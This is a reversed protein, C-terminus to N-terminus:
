QQGGITITGDPKFTIAPRASQTTAAKQENAAVGATKVRQAYQNMFKQFGDLSALLNGSTMKGTDFDSKFKDFMQGGGRAGFHARLAGSLTLSGLTRLYAFDPDDAGVKGTMVENIRGAIPGLKGAKGLKAVESRVDTFLKNLDQAQQGMTKTSATPASPSKWGITEGSDDVLSSPISKGFLTGFTDRDFAQQALSLRGQAIAVSAQRLALNGESIKNVSPPPGLPASVGAEKGPTKGAELKNVVVPGEGTATVTYQGATTLPEAWRHGMPTGFVQYLNPGKPILTENVDTLGLQNAQDGTMQSMKQPRLMGPSFPRGSYAAVAMNLAMTDSLSKDRTKYEDALAKISEMEGKKLALTSAVQTGKEIEAKQAEAAGAMALRSRAGAQTLSEPPPTVTTPPPSAIAPTGQTQTEGALQGTALAPPPAGVTMPGAPAPAPTTVPKNHEALKQAEWGYYNQAWKAAKLKPNSVGGLYIQTAEDQLEPPLEAIRKAMMAGTAQRAAQEKQMNLINEEHVAQGLGSMVGIGFSGM